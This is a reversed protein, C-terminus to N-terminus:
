SRCRSSTPSATRSRRRSCGRATARPSCSSRRGRTSAFRRWSRPRTSRAAPRTCSRTSTAAPSRRRRRRSARPRASWSSSTTPRSHRSSRPSGTAPGRSTSASGSSATTRRARPREHETVRRETPVNANDRGLGAKLISVADDILAADPSTRTTSARGCRWGGTTTPTSSTSSRRRHTPSVCCSGATAATRTSSPLATRRGRGLHAARARRQLVVKSFHKPSDESPFKINGVVDVHDGPRLVGSLIQNTDGKIQMARYTGKLQDRVGAAELDPRLPTGDGARRHLDAAHRDPGLHGRAELDHRQRDGQAPDGADGADEERHGASGLTGQPIDQAAVLVSVTESDSRVSSKYNSVYFVTLLAAVVALGVAILINRLRYTM